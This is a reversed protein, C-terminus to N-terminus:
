LATCCCPRKLCALTLLVSTCFCIDLNRSGTICGTVMIGRKMQLSDTKIGPTSNSIGFQGQCFINFSSSRHEVCTAMVTMLVNVLPHAVVWRNWSCTLSDHTKPHLHETSQKSCSRVHSRSHHITSRYPLGLESVETKLLIPRLSGVTEFNLLM